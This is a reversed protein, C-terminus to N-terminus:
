ACMDMHVHLCQRLLVLLLHQRYMCFPIIANAFVLLVSLFGAFRCTYTRVAEHVCM